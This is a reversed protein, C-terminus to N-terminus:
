GGLRRVPQEEALAVILLGGRRLLRGRVEVPEGLLDLVQRWPAGDDATSLHFYSAVGEADRTVLLPPIGGRVCLTACAKHTKGDGPKMAGLYCKADLIEGRLVVEGLDEAPLPPYRREVITTRVGEDGPLLEVMKRGDRELLYGSVTARRGDLGALRARSGHKGEEVLLLTVVRDDVTTELAPFPDLRLVGVWEQAGATQWEAAGPSRMTWLIVGEVMLLLWLTM